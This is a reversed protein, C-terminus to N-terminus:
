RATRWTNTRTSARDRFYEMFTSDFSKYEIKSKNAKPSSNLKLKFVPNPREMFKLFLIRSQLAFRIAYIVETKKDFNVFFLNQNTPDSSPNIAINKDPNTNIQGFGVLFKGNQYIESAGIQNINLGYISNILSTDIKMKLRLWIVKGDKPIQKLDMVDKTPDISEWQSDDFDPKAFDPNDGAHFKWGKDLLIGQTPISDIRFVEQQALVGLHITVLFIVTLFNKM